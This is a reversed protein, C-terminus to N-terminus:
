RPSTPATLGLPVPVAADTPLMLVLTCNKSYISCSLIAKRIVRTPTDDPFSQPYQLAALDKIAGHLEEAGSLFVADGTKQGNTILIAFTASVSNHQLNTRFPVQLARMDSLAVGGDLSHSPGSINLFPGLRAMEDSLKQHIASGGPAYSALAMNCIGAAKEKKGLKEYTEVLHEGVAASQLVDWAAQLYKAAVPFDGTRFKIWGLTDWDAALQLMLSFDSTDADELSIDMTKESVASVARTSYGLAESLHVNAEALTYAIDNLDNPEADDGLGQKFEPMAKEVDPVWLYAKGLAVHLHQPVDPRDEMVKKLLAVADSARGAQCYLTTLRMLIADNDPDTELAQELQPIAAVSNGFLVAPPLVGGLVVTPSFAGKLFIYSSETDGIAKALSNFKPRDAGPIENRMTKFHLTGHLTDERISYNASFEAFDYKREVDRPLLPSFGNPFTVTTEYTVEQPSGLPLPDKSLMQEENLEGIFIPPAPLLIRHNKWDPFDPRHYTCAFWFPQATDEPEEASVDSVTGAFGMGAVIRQTLEQWNNRPTARYALRVALEGDGRMEAKMKADLTGNADIWANIRFIEYNSAPPDPPTGALRASGSPAVVLAQRGRLNRLLFGFPALEPTTDLFVFFEAQPIATIVHDFLSPSPFAPDIRFNSSILVPSASVNIAQLLAALLTHKDKCDGYRNALVEAASHPTYRSLGLDIGIYRFRSSVFDYLARIKEQDTTKGKTLEEARSRIEATVAAKPKTLGEFWDGVEKWSSFSSVQVDPPPIGKYNKEWAPIKSEEKKKLNANEFTYVRRAGDERVSPKPDSNRLKVPLDRPVDIELTEKLCVGDRFFNHDFWFHGPAIPDHITWRLHLELMDGVSLSKVAIHKERQDTYMPAERSVASDLEQVDSAPTEVVSGDPKRVRAYIIDLSEFSSAFPYTLLGFERVAPESKIRVRAVVDRYGRGDAEFVIKKQILEFVYPESANSDDGSPKASTSTQGDLAASPKQGRAPGGCIALLGLFLAAAPRLRM